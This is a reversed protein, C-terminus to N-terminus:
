SKLYKVLEFKIIEAKKEVNALVRVFFKQQSLSHNAM